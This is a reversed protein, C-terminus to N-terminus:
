GNSYIKSIKRIDQMNHLNNQINKTIKKGENPKNMQKM